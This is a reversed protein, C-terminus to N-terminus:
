LGLCDLVARFLYTAPNQHSFCCSISNKVSSENNHIISKIKIIRYGDGNRVISGRCHIPATLIDLCLGVLQYFCWLLGCTIWVVGTWWNVDQSTFLQTNTLFLDMILDICQKQSFYPTWLGYYHKMCHFFILRRNEEWMLIWGCIQKFSNLSNSKYVTSSRHLNLEQNLDSSKNVPPSTKNHNHVRIKAPLM